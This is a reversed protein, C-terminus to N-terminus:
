AALDLADLYHLLYARAKENASMALTLKGHPSILRGARQVLTGYLTELTQFSWLPARKANTCRELPKVIMQLERGLNHALMACLMYTQNGTLTQTPVYELQCHTKLEAFIGEQSGRGDHYSILKAAGPTKNTVIVKFEYGHEHPRFLDLQVPEKHQLRTRKRVLVFRANAKWKNPKWEREFYAQVDDIRRWRRRSEILGKLATLREFPVSISYDVKNRALMRVIAQSFFASDMRVEITADPLLARIRKICLAIFEEAGRSDHVNGPRHLVDLVQGTQAVTCFLPYYSRQGKKKKNFGVATGEARCGTSLVSGDFDLTIRAPGLGTLGELALDRILHHLKAVSVEDTQALARSITAVDPLCRLGLLRAVMPDDKYYDLDRLRRYGLLLHTVLLATIRGHGFIPHVHLHEFCKNLRGKLDLLAFLMQFVVLGAFSTLSQDEEFRLCPVAHTKRRISRRSTKM